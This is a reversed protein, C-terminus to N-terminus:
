RDRPSTPIFTCGVNLKIYCELLRLNPCNHWLNYEDPYDILILVMLTPYPGYPPGNFLYEGSRWLLRKIPRRTINLAVALKAPCELTVLRPLIGWPLPAITDYTRISLHKILPQNPLFTDELFKSLNSCEFRHLRFTCGRTFTEHKLNCVNTRLDRLNNTARLVAALKTQTSNSIPELFLLHLSRVSLSLRRTTSLRDLLADLSAPRYRLHSITRYLACEAGAHVTTSTSILNVLDRRSSVHEAIIGYIETPFVSM